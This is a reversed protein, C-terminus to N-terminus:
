AIRGKGEARLVRAAQRMDGTLVGGPHAAIRSVVADIHGSDFPLSEAAAKVKAINGIDRQAAERVVAAIMESSLDSAIVEAAHPAMRYAVHGGGCGIDLLRKPTRGRIQHEMWDLDPGSAHVASQVYSEARQVFQLAVHAQQSTQEVQKGSTM